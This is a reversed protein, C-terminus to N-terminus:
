LAAYRLEIVRLSPFVRITARPGAQLGADRILDAFTVNKKYISILVPIPPDQGLVKLQYNTGRAIRAVLPEIPGDWDISAIGEMGYSAPDPPEIHQQIPIAAQEVEALQHLSHSVSSAAETLKTHAADVNSPSSIQYPHSTKCGVMVLCSCLVLALNKKFMRVEKVEM